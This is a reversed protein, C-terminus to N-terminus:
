LRINFAQLTPTIHRAYYEIIRPESVRYGSGDTLPALGKRWALAKAAEELTADISTSSALSLKRSVHAGSQTAATVIQFAPQSLERIRIERNYGGSLQASAAAAFLNVPTLTVLRLLAESVETQFRARASSSVKGTRSKDWYKSLSIPRGFNVYVKGYKRDLRQLPTATHVSAKKEGTDTAFEYDEPVITYTNARPIAVMGSTLFSRSFMTNLPQFEGSKYRGSGSLIEVNHGLQLHRGVYDLALQAQFWDAKEVDRNIRILGSNPLEWKIFESQLRQNLSLGGAQAKVVNDGGITYNKGRGIMVWALTALDFYSFHTSVVVASGKHLMAKATDFGTVEVGAFSLQVIGFAWLKSIALAAPNQGAKMSELHQVAQVSLGNRAAEYGSGNTGMSQRRALTDVASQVTESGLVQQELANHM